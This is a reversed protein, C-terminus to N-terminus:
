HGYFVRRIGSRTERPRFGPREHGSERGSHGDRQDTWRYLGADDGHHDPRAPSSKRRWATEFKAQNELDTVAQYGPYVNPLGGMDCAGQVNNQGRLPNVGTSPRGIQGCLMALNALSKVNDVATWHQTIGLCYIIASKESKAYLEAVKTITAVEVGAIEAAREPPYQEITEILEGFGETREDIFDKRHWGNRYIVQMIGNLLAVDTGLRHEVHIAAM